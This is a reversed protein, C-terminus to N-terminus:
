IHCYVTNTLRDLKHLKEFLDEMFYFFCGFCSIQLIVEFWLNHSKHTVSAMKVEVFHKKQAAFNFLLYSYLAPSQFSSCKGEVKKLPPVILVM